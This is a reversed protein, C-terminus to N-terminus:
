FENDLMESGKNMWGDQYPVPVTSLMATWLCVLCDPRLTVM